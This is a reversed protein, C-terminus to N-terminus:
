KLKYENKIFYDKVRKDTNFIKNLIAKEIETYETKGFEDSILKYYIDYAINLLEKYNFKIKISKNNEKEKKMEKDKIIKNEKEKENRIIELNKKFIEKSIM